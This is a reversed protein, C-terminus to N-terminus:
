LCGTMVSCSLCTGGQGYYGTDCACSLGNQIFHSTTDCQVCTTADSCDYCGVLSCPLCLGGFLYYGIKCSCTDALAPIFNAALDCTVCTSSDSCALCGAIWASCSVCTSDSNNFAYGGDCVCAGLAVIFHDATNCLTCSGPGSCVLCHPDDCPACVGANNYSGVDCLSCGGVACRKCGSGYPM